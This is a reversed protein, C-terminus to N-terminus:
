SNRKWEPTGNHRNWEQLVKIGDPSLLSLQMTQIEDTTELVIGVGSEKWDSTVARLGYREIHVAPRHTHGHILLHSNYNSMWSDVTEEVADSIAEPRNSQADRSVQRLSKAITRREKLSKCLFDESWQPSRVETRFEQYRLDDTCLEDGHIIVATSEKLPPSSLSINHQGLIVNSVLFDRNGHLFITDASHAGCFALFEEDLSDASDDGVWAEFIDGALILQDCRSYQISLMAARYRSPMSPDLHLDSIILQRM